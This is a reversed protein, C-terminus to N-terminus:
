VRQGALGTFLDCDARMIQNFWIRRKDDVMLPAKTAGFPGGLEIDGLGLLCVPCYWRRRGFNFCFRVFGGGMDDKGGFGDKPRRNHRERKGFWWVGVRDLSAESRQGESSRLRRRPCDPVFGWGLVDIPELFCLHVSGSHDTSGRPADDLMQGLVM